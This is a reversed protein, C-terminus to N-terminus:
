LRSVKFNYPRLLDFKVEYEGEHRYDRSTFILKRKSGNGDVVKFNTPQFIQWLILEFYSTYLTIDDHFAQNLYKEAESTYLRPM